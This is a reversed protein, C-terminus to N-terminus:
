RLAKYTVVVRLLALDYDAPSTASTLAFAIHAHGHSVRNTTSFTGLTLWGNAGSRNLVHGTGAVWQHTTYNWISANLLEPAYLASGYSSVSFGTYSIASPLSYDYEALEYQFSHCTNVLVVGHAFDSATTNFGTCSTASAEFSFASNGNKTITSSVTVLKKASVYVRNWVTYRRNGAADEAFFHFSYIGAAVPAGSASKADWTIGTTGDTAVHTSIRRILHGSDNRIELFLTGPMGTLAATPRFSDKYGDHYPYFTQNAGTATSVTPPTDDVVVPHDATGHAVEGGALALSTDIRIDYTADAVRTASNDRGDWIYTHAGSPLLGFAIPGRMVADDSDRVVTLTVSESELLTFTATTVDARGDGNPSFSAPVVSDVSPQLVDVTFSAVASAPGACADGAANCGVVSATHAGATLGSVDVSYPATGDFGANNGDILFKVGGGDATATLTTAAGTTEGDVPNTLVPAANQVTVSIAAAPDSCGSSDCDAAQV